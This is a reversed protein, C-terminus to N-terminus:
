KEMLLNDSTYIYCYETRRQYDGYKNRLLYNSLIDNDIIQVYGPEYNFCIQEKM